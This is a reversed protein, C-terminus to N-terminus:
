YLLDTRSLPWYIKVVKGIIEDKHIAGFYRSDQSRYLNDGLVFYQDQPVQYSKSNKQLYIARDSVNEPSRVPKEKKLIKFKREIGNVFFKDDWIQINEGGIAVIRKCFVYNGTKPTDEPYRVNEPPKFSIIDGPKPQNYRYILKNIIIRDGARITPEMSEGWINPHCEYIYRTLLYPSLFTTNCRMLIFIIAFILLMRNNYKARVPFSMNVQVCVCMHFFFMLIVCVIRDPLFIDLAFFTLIYSIALGKKGKYWHGLGPYLLTLFVAKWPKKDKSPKERFSDTDYKNTLKFVDVCILIPLIVVCSLRLLLSIYFPIQTSIMSTAWFAYFLCILLFCFLGRIYKGIYIQGMGPLMWSM